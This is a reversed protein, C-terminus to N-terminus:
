GKIQKAFDQFSVTKKTVFSTLLNEVKKPTLLHVELLSLRSLIELAENVRGIKCRMKVNRKTTEISATASSLACSQLIFCFWKELDLNYFVCLLFACQFESMYVLWNM